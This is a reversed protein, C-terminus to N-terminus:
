DRRPLRIELPLILRWTAARHWAGALLAAFAVARGAALDVRLVTGGGCRTSILTLRPPSAWPVPSPTMAGLEACRAALREVAEALAHGPAGSAQDAVDHQLCTASSSCRRTACCSNPLRPHDGSAGLM